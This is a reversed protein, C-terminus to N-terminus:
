SLVCTQMYLPGRSDCNFASLIFTLGLLSAAWLTPCQHQASAPRIGLFSFRRYSLPTSVVPWPCSPTVSSMDQSVSLLRFQFIVNFLSSADAHNVGLEMTLQVWYFVHPAQCKPMHPHCSQEGTYSQAPPALFHLQPVFSSTRWSTCPNHSLMNLPLGQSLPLLIFSPM